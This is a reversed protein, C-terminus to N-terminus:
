LRKCTNSMCYPVLNIEHKVIQKIKQFGQEREIRNYLYTPEQFYYHSFEPILFTIIVVTITIINKIFLKNGAPFIKLVHNLSYHTIFYIACLYIMISLLITFSYGYHIIGFLYLLPLTFKYKYPLLWIIASFGVLFSIIHIIRNYKNKHYKQFEVCDKDIEM